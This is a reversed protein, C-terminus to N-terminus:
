KLVVKSNDQKEFQNISGFHVTPKMAFNYNGKSKPTVVLRVGGRLIVRRLGNTDPCMPFPVKFLNFHFNGMLWDTHPM